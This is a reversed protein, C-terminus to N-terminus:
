GALARGAAIKERLKSIYRASQEPGYGGARFADNWQRESLRALLECAWRIEDPTIDAFLEARPRIYDFRM